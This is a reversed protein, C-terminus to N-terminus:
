FNVSTYKHLPVPKQVKVLTGFKAFHDRLILENDETKLISCHMRSVSIDSIRIDRDNGRGMTFEEDQADLNVVIFQKSTDESLTELVM